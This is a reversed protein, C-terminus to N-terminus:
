LFRNGRLKMIHLLFGLCFIRINLPSTQNNKKVLLAIKKEKPVMDQVTAELVLDCYKEKSSIGIGNM